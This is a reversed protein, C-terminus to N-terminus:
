DYQLTRGRANIVHLALLPAGLAIKHLTVRSLPADM